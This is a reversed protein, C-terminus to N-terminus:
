PKTNGAPTASIIRPSNVAVKGNLGNKLGAGSSAGAADGAGVAVAVGTRMAIVDGALPSPTLTGKLSLPVAGSRPPSLSQSNVHLSFAVTGPLTDIIRRRIRRDINGAAEPIGIDSCKACWTFFNAM